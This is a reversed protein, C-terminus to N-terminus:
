RNNDAKEKLYKFRAIVTPIGIRLWYKTSVKGSSMGGKAYRKLYVMKTEDISSNLILEIESKIELFIQEENQWKFNLYKLELEKWLGKDGRLGFQLPEDGFLNNVSTKESIADNHIIEFKSQKNFDSKLLALKRSTSENTKSFKAVNYFVLNSSIYGTTLMDWFADFNNGYYDPFKLKFKLKEHLSETSTINGLDVIEVTPCDQPIEDKLRQLYDVTHNYSSNLKENIESTKAILQEYFENSQKVLITSAIAALNQVLYELDEFSQIQLFIECYILSGDIKENECESIPDALNSTLDDEWNKIRHRLIQNEKESFSNLHRIIILNHGFIWSDGEDDNRNAGLYLKLAEIKDEIKPIETM